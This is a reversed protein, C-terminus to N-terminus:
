SEHVNCRVLKGTTTKDTINFSEFLKIRQENRLCTLVRYDESLLENILKSELIFGYPKNRYEKKVILGSTIAVKSAEAYTAIHAIIKNDKKIIFNRAFGDKRRNILQSALQEHEYFGGIIEDSLILAACDFLEKDSPIEILENFSISPYNKIEYNYGVSYEFEPLFAQLKEIFCNSGTINPCRITNVMSKVYQMCSVDIDEDICFIQLTDFYRMLAINIKSQSNRHIFFDVNSCGLGYKVLNVYMYYSEKLNSFLTNKLDNFDVDTNCKYM